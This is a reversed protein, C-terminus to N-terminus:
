PGRPLGPSAQVMDVTMWLINIVCPWRSRGCDQVMGLTTHYTILFAYPVQMRLPGRIITNATQTLGTLILFTRSLPRTFLCLARLALNQLQNREGHSM